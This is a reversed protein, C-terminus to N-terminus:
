PPGDDEWGASFCEELAAEGERESASAPPQEVGCEEWFEEGYFLWEADGTWVRTITRVDEADVARLGELLTDFVTRVPAVYWAGDKEEVVIRPAAVGTGFSGFVGVPSMADPDGICTKTTEDEPTPVDPVPPLDDPGGIV